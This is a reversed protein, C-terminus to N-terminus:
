VASIAVILVIPVLHGKIVVFLAIVWQKFFMGDYFARFAVLRQTPFINDDLFFFNREDLVLWEALQADITMFIRVVAAESFLTLFTVRLAAPFCNTLVM